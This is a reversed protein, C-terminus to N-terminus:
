ITCYMFMKKNLITYIYQIIYLVKCVDMSGTNLINPLM